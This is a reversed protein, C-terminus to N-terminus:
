HGLTRPLKFTSPYLLCPPAFLSPVSKTGPIQPLKYKVTESQKSPYFTLSDAGSLPLPAQCNSSISITMAYLPFATPESIKTMRNELHRELTQSSAPAYDVSLM